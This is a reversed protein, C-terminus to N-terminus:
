TSGTRYHKALGHLVSLPSATPKAELKLLLDEAFKKTMLPHPGSLSGGTGIRASLDALYEAPYPSSLDVLGIHTCGKDLLHRLVMRCRENDQKTEVSHLWWVDIGARVTEICPALCEGAGSQQFSVMDPPPASKDLNRLWEVLGPLNERVLVGLGIKQLALPPFPSVVFGDAPGRVQMSITSRQYDIGSLQRFDELSRDSGLGFAGHLGEGYYLKQLRKMSNNRVAVWSQQRKADAEKNWHVGRSNHGPVRYLHYLPVTLPHFIDWGRTFARVTLNPEDGTFYLQPDYPVEEMFQGLTFIFGGALHYGQNVKGKSGVLGKGLYAPKEFTIPTGPKLVFVTGKSWPKKEPGDEEMTFPPPYNTLIPKPSIRLLGKIQEVLLTDWGQDFVTHADIQLLYDEGGYLSSVVYRAWACGRADQPNVQLYRIQKRFALGDIEARLDIDNQDVVGFILDGPNDATAHCDRLTQLLYDDCYSAISIFIPM